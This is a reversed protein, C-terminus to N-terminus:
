RCSCLVWPAFLLISLATPFYHGLFKIFPYWLEPVLNYVICLPPLHLHASVTSVCDHVFLKYLM